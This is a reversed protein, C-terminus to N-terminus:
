TLSLFRPMPRLGFVPRSTSIGGPLVMRKLGPLASRSMLQAHLRLFVRIKEAGVTEGGPRKRRRRRGVTGPPPKVDQKEGQGEGARGDDAAQEPATKGWFHRMEAGGPEEGVGAEIQGPELERDWEERNQHKITDVM